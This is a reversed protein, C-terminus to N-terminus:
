AMGVHALVQARREPSLFGLGKQLGELVPNAFHNDLLEAFSLQEGHDPAAQLVRVPTNTINTKCLRDTTQRSGGKEVDPVLELVSLPLRPELWDLVTKALKRWKDGVMAWGRLFMRWIRIPLQYSYRSSIRPLPPLYPQILVYGKEKLDSLWRGITTRHKGLREAMQGLTLDCPTDPRSMSAILGLLIKQGANLDQSSVLVKPISYSGSYRSSM